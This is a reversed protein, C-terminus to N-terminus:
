DCTLLLVLLTFALAKLLSLVSPADIYPSIALQQACRVKTIVFIVSPWKVVVLVVLLYAEINNNNNTPHSQTWMTSRGINAYQVLGLHYIITM